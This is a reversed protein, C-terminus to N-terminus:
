GVTLTVRRDGPRALFFWTGGSLELMATRRGVFARGTVTAPVHLRKEVILAATASRDEVVLRYRGPRLRTVAAGEYVLALKGRASVRAALVGRYPLVASGVLATSSVTTHESAVLGSPNSPPPTGAVVSSTVFTHVVGPFAEDTWAYAANPQLYANLEMNDSEGENLNDHIAVGPGRLDFYPYAACGGPGTEQILYFGAPIVTPSGSTVGVPAGDPLTVTIAGSTFFTVQLTLPSAARARAAGPLALAAAAAAAIV